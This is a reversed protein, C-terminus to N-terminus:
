GAGIQVNFKTCITSSCVSLLWTPSVVYKYVSRAVECTISVQPLESLVSAWLSLGLGPKQSKCIPKIDELRRSFLVHNSCSNIQSRKNQCNLSSQNDKQPLERGTMGVRGLYNLPHMRTQKPTVDAAGPSEQLQTPTLLGEALQSQTYLTPM